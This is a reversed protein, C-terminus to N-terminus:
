MSSFKKNRSSSRVTRNYSSNNIVWDLSLYGLHATVGALIVVTEDEFFTGIVLIPHGYSTLLSELM